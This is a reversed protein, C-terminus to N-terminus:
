IRVLNNTGHSNAKSLLNYIVNNIFYQILICWVTFHIRSLTGAVTLYMYHILSVSVMM